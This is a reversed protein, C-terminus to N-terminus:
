TQAIPYKAFIEEIPKFRCEGSEPPKTALITSRVPKPLPFEGNGRALLSPGRLDGEVRGGVSVRRDPADDQGAGDCFQRPFRAVDQDLVFVGVPAPAPLARRRARRSPGSSMAKQRQPM